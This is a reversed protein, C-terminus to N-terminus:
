CSKTQKALAETVVRPAEINFYDLAYQTEESPTGLAVAETEKRIRKYTLLVLQQESLMQILIKTDLVLIKSM